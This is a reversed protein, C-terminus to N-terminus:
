GKEFVVGRGIAGLLPCWRRTVVVEIIRKLGLMIARERGQRPTV